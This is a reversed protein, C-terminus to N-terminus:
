PRSSKDNALGDGRRSSSRTRPWSPTSPGLVDHHGQGPCVYNVLAIQAAIPPDYYSTSSSAGGHLKNQAAKPIHMNDTWLM